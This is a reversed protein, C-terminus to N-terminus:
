DQQTPTVTYTHFAWDSNKDQRDFVFGGIRTGVLHTLRSTLWNQHHKYPNALALVEPALNAMTVPRDGHHHHWAAFLAVLERRRPDDRKMVKIRAVPDACGLSLLPDRCWDSWKEYSGLPMGVKLKDTNQRGWRWITLGAALLDLRRSKIEDLFGAKFERLFADECHADLKSVIFRRLLDESLTLGNGTVTVLASTTILPMKNGGLLRNQFPSETMVLALFNSQLNTSNINDLAIMPESKILSSALRKEFEARNEGKDFVPPSFNYAILGIARVLLGKGTGSGSGQPANFLVGPALPLSPRCIATLLGVLFASEDQGPPDDLNVVDVQLSNEKQRTSDAFPFTRFAIRLERLANEADSKTSHDPLSPIKIGCCWLKTERDYGEATRVGGDQTLLAATSVGALPQFTKDRLAMCLRAVRDPLTLPLRVVQDEEMSLRVPQCLTHTENVINHVTMKEAVTGDERQTLMVPGARDFILGSSKLLDHLDSATKPLDEDRVILDPKKAVKILKARGVDEQHELISVERDRFDADRATHKNEAM